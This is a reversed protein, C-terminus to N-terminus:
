RDHGGRLVGSYMVRDWHEDWTSWDDGGEEGEDSELTGRAEGSFYSRLAELKRARPFGELM